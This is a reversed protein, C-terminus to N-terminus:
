KVVFELSLLDSDDSSSGVMVRFIGPECIFECDQNYFGLNEKSLAFEIIKSEKAKLAIRQFGKLEKVPRVISASQDRIYLQVIEVGDCEGTNTVVVHATLVGGEGMETKDLSFDSYRFQTYSLGYGFQYLPRNSGDIYRSTFREGISGDMQPRGTNFQNYYIPIQGQHRPFTMCLKGSPNYAGSLVDAIADGAQSGLFWTEVIADMHEHFWDLLLPRGNSLLLIVPKKLKCIEEALKKQVSPVSIEQRSCAEGSMDSGEGLALLVVDAKRALECAEQLGNEIEFDVGCGAEYTVDFGAHCLGELITVTKDGYRSFQWNGLLDKSDGKPGILALKQTKELPLVSNNKLLVISERAMDRAINLHEPCFIMQEAKQENLYGYPEAMIGLDYKLTLIRRVIDDIQKEELHGDRILEEACELYCTSTMEIDLGADICKRAAERRNQACGHAITEEVGSYDSIVVGGFELKERLLHMLIKKNASVAVGNICNFASMVSAADAKIGAAFPPMYTNYLTVDDITTTNYERGGEAASYGIFHKLCAAVTGKERLGSGQYGNVQAAAIRAALCPDEGAGEMVRGWRPDRAIDLMPSFALMIGEASAEIASASVAQTIREMHFSCAWALTIPFITQYGHIVDQCFLLPIGLRSEEVAIRQMEYIQEPTMGVCIMSGCKGSRIEQEIARQGSDAGIQGTNLGAFQSMQGIKESLNMQQLLEEVTNYVSRKM